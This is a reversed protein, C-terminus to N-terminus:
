PKVVASMLALGAVFPPLDGGTLEAIQRSFADVPGAHKRDMRVAEPIFIEFRDYLRRKFHPKAKTDGRRLAIELGAANAEAEQDIRYYRETIINSNFGHDVSLSTGWGLGHNGGLGFTMVVYRPEGIAECLHGNIIKFDDMRAHLVALAAARERHWYTPQSWYIDRATAM